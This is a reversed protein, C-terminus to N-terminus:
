GRWYNEDLSYWWRVARRLRVRWWEPGPGGPWPAGYYACYCGQGPYQGVCLECEYPPWCTRILWRKM